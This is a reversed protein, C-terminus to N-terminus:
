VIATLLKMREMLEARLDAVDDPYLDLDALAARCDDSAAADCFGPSGQAAIAHAAGLVAALPRASEPAARPQHQFEAAHRLLEPFEWTQMLSAIRQAHTDGLICAEVQELPSVPQVRRILEAYRAGHQRHLDLMGLEHLLGVLFAETEFQLGLLRAVLQSCAAIELSHAWLADGGIPGIRSGRLQGRALVLAAISSVNEAGLILLARTLQHVRGEMGYLASGAVRVTEQALRPSAAICQELEELRGRPDRALRVLRGLLALEHSM